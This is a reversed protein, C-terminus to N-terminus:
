RSPRGFSGQSIGWPPIRDLYYLGGKWGTRLIRGLCSADHARRVAFVVVRLSVGVVVVAAWFLRDGMASVVPVVASVVMVVVM